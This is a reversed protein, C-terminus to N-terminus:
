VHEGHASEQTDKRPKETNGRRKRVDIGAGQLAIRSRTASLSSKSVKRGPYSHPRRFRDRKSGKRTSKETKEHKGHEKRRVRYHRKTRVSSFIVKKLKQCFPVVPHSSRTDIIDRKEHKRTNERAESVLKLGAWEDSQALTTLLSGESWKSVKQGGKAPVYSHAPRFQIGSHARKRSFLVEQGYPFITCETRM